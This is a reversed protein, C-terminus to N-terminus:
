GSSSGRKYNKKRYISGVGEMLFMVMSMTLFDSLMLSFFYLFSVWIGLNGGQQSVEFWLVGVCLLVSECVGSTSTYM